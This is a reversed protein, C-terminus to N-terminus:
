LIDDESYRLPEEYCEDHDLMEIEQLADRWTSFKKDDVHIEELLPFNGRGSIFEIVQLTCTRIIVSTVSAMEFLPQGIVPLSTVLGELNSLELTTINTGTSCLALLTRIENAHLLGARSTSAFDYCLRQLNPCSEIAEYTFAILAWWADLYPDGPTISLLCQTIQPLEVDDSRHGDSLTRVYPLVSTTLHLCTANEMMPSHHFAQLRSEPTPTLHLHLSAGKSNKLAFSWSATVVDLDIRTWLHVM